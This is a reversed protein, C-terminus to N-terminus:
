AGVAKLAALCIAHSFTEGKAWHQKPRSALSSRSDVMAWRGVKGETMTTVAFDRFMELVGWAAGIDTSFDPFPERWETGPRRGIGRGADAWKDGPDGFKWRPWSEAPDCGTWGMVKEAVLADLERGANVRGQWLVRV